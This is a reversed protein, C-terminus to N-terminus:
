RVRKKIQAKVRKALEETSPHEASRKIKSSLAMKMVPLSQVVTQELPAPGVVEDNNDIDDYQSQMAKAASLASSRQGRGTARPQLQAVDSDETPIEAGQHTTRSNLVGKVEDTFFEPYDLWGFYLLDPESRYAHAMWMCIEDHPPFYLIDDWWTINRLAADEFGAEVLNATCQKARRPGTSYQFRDTVILSYSKFETGDSEGTSEEVEEAEEDYGLVDFEVLDSIYRSHKEPNYFTVFKGRELDILDGVAFAADQNDTDGTYDSQRLNALRDLNRAASGSVQIIQPLDKEGAGLPVGAAKVYIRDNNQYVFGQYFGVSNPRSIKGNKLYVAWKPTIVARGRIQAEGTDAAQKIARYFVTYPNSSSDYQGTKALRPDYMLFTFSQDLGIYKAAPVIRVWDSFASEVSVDLRTPDFEEPNEYNFNPLIRCTMPYEGTWRPRILDCPQVEPEGPVSVRRLTRDDRPGRADFQTTTKHQWTRERPAGAKPSRRSSAMGVRQSM